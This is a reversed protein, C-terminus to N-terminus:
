NGRKIAYLLWLYCAEQWVRHVDSEEEEKLGKWCVHRKTSNSAICNLSEPNRFVILIAPAVQLDAQQPSVWGRTSPSGAVHSLSLGSIVISQQEVGFASLSASSTRPPLQQEPSVTLHPGVESELALALSVPQQAGSGAASIFSPPSPQQEPSVPLHLATESGLGLVLSVLQQADSSTTGM